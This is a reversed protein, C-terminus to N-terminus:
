AETPQLIPKSQIPPILQKEGEPFLTLVFKKGDSTRFNIVQWCIRGSDIYLPEVDVSVVNHIGASFNSM